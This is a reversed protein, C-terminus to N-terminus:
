LTLDELELKYETTRRTGLLLLCCLEDFLQRRITFTGVNSFVIGTKADKFELRVFVYEDHEVIKTLSITM